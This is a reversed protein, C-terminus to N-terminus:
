PELMGTKPAAGSAILARRGTKEADDGSDIQKSLARSVGYRGYGKYAMCKRSTAIAMDAEADAILANALIMGGLGFMPFLEWGSRGRPTQPL